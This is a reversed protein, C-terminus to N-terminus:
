LYECSQDEKMIFCIGSNNRNYRKTVERRILSAPFLLLLPMQLSGLLIHIQFHGGTELNKNLKHTFSVM